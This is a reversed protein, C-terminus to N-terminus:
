PKAGTESSREEAGREAAPLPQGNEDANHLVGNVVKCVFRFAEKFSPERFAPTLHGQGGKFDEPSMRDIRELAKKYRCDHGVEDTPTRPSGDGWGGALAARLAAVARSCDAADGEAFAFASVYAVAQGEVIISGDHGVSVRQATEDRSGDGEALLRAVEDACEHFAHGRVAWETTRYEERWQEVLAALAATLDRAM